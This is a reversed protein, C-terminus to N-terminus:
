SSVRNPTKLIYHELRINALVYSENQEIAGVNMVSKVIFQDLRDGVRWPASPDISVVGHEEWLRQLVTDPHRKLRGYGPAVGADPLVRDVLCSAFRTVPELTKWTTCPRPRLTISPLVKSQSFPSMM